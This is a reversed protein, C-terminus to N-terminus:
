WYASMANAKNLREELTKLGKILGWWEFYDQSDGLKGEEFKKQFEPSMLHYKEEFLKIENEILYIKSELLIIERHISDKIVPAIDESIAIDM